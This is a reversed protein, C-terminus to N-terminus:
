GLVYRRSPGGFSTQGSPNYVGADAAATPTRMANILVQNHSLQKTILMGNVRNLEKAARTKDLLDQWVSAGEAADAGASALWPEMGADQGTFGAAGLV